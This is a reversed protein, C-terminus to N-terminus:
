SYNEYLLRVTYYTDTWPTPYYSEYFSEQLDSDGYDVLFM